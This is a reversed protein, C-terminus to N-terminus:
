SGEGVALRTIAAAGYGVVRQDDGSAEASTTYGVIEAQTAGLARCAILMAAIAGRGCAFARGEREVAIVGEPDFAAVRDLMVGDFLRAQQDPYYHSLDSSAVVLADPGSSLVAGLARGLKQVTTISQDRLMLPLLMFPGDLARQLFPLEIELAHEPDSRAPTLTIQEGLAAMGEADVLVNGLPTTYADHTTTLVAGPYPQHMPALVAVREIRRGEILKFARAATAGSYIYGAHPALLGVVEGEVEARPANALLADVTEALEAPDSSYWRGAIPSPRVDLPQATM